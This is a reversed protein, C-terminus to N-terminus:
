KKFHTKVHRNLGSRSHSKYDCYDCSFKPKFHFRLHNKLGDKTKFSKGDPCISCKFPKVDSHTAEHRDLHDKRSFKRDCIKCAYPKEGTHIRYHLALKSKCEFVKYCVKCMYAKSPEHINM